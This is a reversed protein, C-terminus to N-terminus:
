KFIRAIGKSGTPKLWGVEKGLLEALVRVPLMTYTEKVPKGDVITEIVHLIAGQKLPVVVGANDVLKNGDIPLDVYEVTGLKLMGGGYSSDNGPSGMDIARKKLFELVSGTYGVSKLYSAQAVYCGAAYPDAFSTGIPQFYGGEGEIYPVTTVFDTTTATASYSAKELTTEYIAGIDIIHKWTSFEATGGNGKNGTAAIIIGGLAAYEKSSEIDIGNMPVVLVHVPNIGTRLSDAALLTSPKGNQRIEIISAPVAHKLCKFVTQEHGDASPINDLIWIRWGIGKHGLAHLISLGSLDDMLKNKADAEQRTIM